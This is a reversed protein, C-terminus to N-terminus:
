NTGNKEGCSGLRSIMSPKRNSPYTKSRLQKLIYQSRSYSCSRLNFRCWTVPLDGLLDQTVSTLPNPIAKEPATPIPRNEVDPCTMAKPPGTPASRANKKALRIMKETMLDKASITETRGTLPAIM